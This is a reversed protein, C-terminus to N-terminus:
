ATRTVTVVKGDDELKFKAGGMSKGVPYRRTNLTDYQSIPFEEKSGIVMSRLVSPIPRTELNKM